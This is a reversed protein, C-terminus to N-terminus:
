VFDIVCFHMVTVAKLHVRCQWIVGLLLRYEAVSVKALHYRGLVHIVDSLKYEAKKLKSTECVHFCRLPLCTLWTFDIQGWDFFASCAQFKLGDVHASVSRLTFCLFLNM